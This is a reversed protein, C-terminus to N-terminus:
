EKNLTLIERYVKKLRTYIKGYVRHYMKDYLAVVDKRPQFVKEIKVMQSVAEDVSEYIGVGVFGIVAAGLGTTEYTQVKYVERNIVDATIQCITDSQSGGGSLAIKEMTVKSKKELKEIGERLAFAIGEIIARYLHIKGHADSFGIICGKAEPRLLEQGWYPQLLLGDCGPSILDLKQDLIKIAEDSNGNAEILEEHAFEEEFWKIMWYGRSITIEPNYWGKKVSPFPPFLPVLEFYKPSTTQITAQSGLSISGMNLQHCGVGLTECGKDSGSAIVPLHTQLGTLQSVELTIPGIIQGPEVLDFLYHDEIQFVQRKIDHKSAWSFRKYDFPIHGITSATSDRYLGTLRYNLYTSLLLYKHVRNWIHLEYEKIWNGRFERNFTGGIKRFKVARLALRAWLAMPSEHTSKRTDMWVICPRLPKGVQDVVVISDRQCSITLGSLQNFVEKKESKLHEIGRLIKEWLIDPDIEKWGYQHSIYEKILEKHKFILQGFQDFVLVRISQTGCDITLFFRQERVIFRM